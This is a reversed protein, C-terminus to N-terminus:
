PAARPRLLRQGFPALMLVAAVCLTAAGALATSRHAFVLTVAAGSTVALAVVVPLSHKDLLRQRSLWVLAAATFAVMTALGAGRMGLPPILALDLGICLVSATAAGHLFRVNQGRSILSYGIPYGIAYWAVGSTLLVFTGGSARYAAGFVVGLVERGLLEVLGLMVLGYAALPGLASRTLRHADAEGRAEVIRTLVPLMSEGALVAVLNLVLFLRYPASYLGAQRNSHTAALIITDVNAYYSYVALSGFALPRARRIMPRMGDLGFKVGSSRHSRGWLITAEAAEGVVFAALALTAISSIRTVILAAVLVAAGGGASALAVVAMREQGRALWDGQMVMFVAMAAAITLLATHGPWLVAACAIGIVSVVALVLLRVSTVHGYLWGAREPAVAADRTGLDPLGLSTAILAVGSIAIAVNVLGFDSTSLARALVVFAGFRFAKNALEGSLLKGIHREITRRHLGTGVAGAPKLDEVLSRDPNVTV